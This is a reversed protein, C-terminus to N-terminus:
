VREVVLRRVIEFKKKLKESVCVSVCVGVSEREGCNWALKTCIKIFHVTESWVSLHYSIYFIWLNLSVLLFVTVTVSISIPLYTQITNHFIDCMGHPIYAYINRVFRFWCIFCNHRVIHVFEPETDIRSMETDVSRNRHSKINDEWKIRDDICIYKVEVFFFSSFALLTFLILLRLKWKEVYFISLM